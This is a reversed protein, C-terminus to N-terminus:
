RAPRPARGAPAEGPPPAGFELTASFRPPAAVAAASPAQRVTVRLWADPREGRAFAVRTVNALLGGREDHLPQDMAVRAGKAGGGAAADSGSGPEPGAPHVLLITGSYRKAFAVLDRRFELYGDRRHADGLSLWAFPARRREVLHPDGPLLLVVTAVRSRKAFQLANELWFRNAIERDEFEGNRGGQSLYHNNDGTVNLAVFLVDGLQWRMNERYPRFRTTESERAIVIGADASASDSNFTERFFDLREVPDYGGGANGECAIWDNAGPLFIVPVSALAYLDRRQELLDDRCPEDVGKVNGAVVAFSLAGRELTGLLTRVANEESPDRPANAFMAFAVPAVPAVSTEPSPMTAGPADNQAGRGAGRAAVCSLCAILLAICLSVPPARWPAPPGCGGEPALRDEPRNM